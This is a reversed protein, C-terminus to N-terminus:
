RIGMIRKVNNDELSSRIINTMSEFNDALNNIAFTLLSVLLMDTGEQSFLLDIFPRFLRYLLRKEFLM